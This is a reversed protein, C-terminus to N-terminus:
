ASQLQGRIDGVDKPLGLTASQQFQSAGVENRAAASGELWLM